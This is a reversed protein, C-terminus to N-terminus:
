VGPVRGEVAVSGNVLIVPLGRERSEVSDALIEVVDVRVPVNYSKAVILAATRAVREALVGDPDVGRYVTIEVPYGGM